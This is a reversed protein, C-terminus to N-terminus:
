TMTGLPTFRLNRIGASELARKVHEHVVITATDEALRFMLRGRAKAPDVVLSEFHTDVRAEGDFNTWRSRELDAAAVLGIINVAFYRFERANAPDALVAPYVDLNEVGCGRLAVVMAEAMLCMARDFMPAPEGTFDQVPVLDIRIPDPLPRAFPRGLAWSEVGDFDLGDSPAYYGGDDDIPYDYGLEYYPM